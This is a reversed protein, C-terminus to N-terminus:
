YVRRSRIAKHRKSIHHKRTKKNKKRKNKTRKGGTVTQTPTSNMLTNIQGKFTPNNMLSNYIQTYLKTTYTSEFFNKQVLEYKEYKTKNETNQLKNYIQNYTYLTFKEPSLSTNFIGIDSFKTDILNYLNHIENITKIAPQRVFNKIQGLNVTYNNIITTFNDFEKLYKNIINLLVEIDKNNKNIDEGRNTNNLGKLLEFLGNIKKTYGNLRMSFYELNTTLRKMFTVNEEESNILKAKTKNITDLVNKTLRNNIQGKYNKLDIPNFIENEINVNTESLKTIKNFSADTNKIINKAEEAYGFNLLATDDSLDTIPTTVTQAM